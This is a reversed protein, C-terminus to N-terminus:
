CKKLIKCLDSFECFPIPLSLTLMNTLKTGSLFDLSSMDAMDLIGQREEHEAEGYSYDGFESRRQGTEQKGGIRRRILRRSTLNRM